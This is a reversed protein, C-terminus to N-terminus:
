LSHHSHMARTRKARYTYGGKERGLYEREILTDIRQKVFKPQAVFHSMLQACVEAVLAAALMTRRSKMVRVIAADVQFSRDVDVVKKIESSERRTYRPVASAVTIRLKDPVWDAIWRCVGKECILIPLKPAILPEVVKQLDDADLKLVESLTALAHSDGENFQLLVCAQHTSVVLEHKRELQLHLSVNGQLHIWQLRRNQMMGGYFSNFREVGDRLESTLQLQNADQQQIPWHNSNLVQVILEYGTQFKADESQKTNFQKIIDRSTKMDTFMGELKNAFAVGALVKPKSIM